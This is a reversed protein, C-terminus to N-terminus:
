DKAGVVILQLKERKMSNPPHQIFDILRGVLTSQNITNLM